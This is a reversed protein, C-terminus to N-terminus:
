ILGKGDIGGSGYTIGFGGVLDRTNTSLNVVDSENKPLVITYNNLVAVESNPLSKLVNSAAEVYNPGVNPASEITLSVGGSSTVQRSTDGQKLVQEAM